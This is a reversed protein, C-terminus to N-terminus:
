IFVLSSGDWTESSSEKLHKWEEHGWWSHLYWTTFIFVMLVWILNSWLQKIKYWLCSKSHIVSHLVMKNQRSKKSKLGWDNQRHFSNQQHTPFVKFYGRFLLGPRVFGKKHLCRLLAVVQILNWGYFGLASLKFPKSDSGMNRKPWM